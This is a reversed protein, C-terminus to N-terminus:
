DQEAGEEDRQPKAANHEGDLDVGGGAGDLGVGATGGAGGREAVQSDIL